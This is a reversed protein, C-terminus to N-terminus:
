TYMIKEINELETKVTELSNTTINSMSCISLYLVLLSLVGNQFNEMKFTKLTTGYKRVADLHTPRINAIFCISLYLIFLSLGCMKFTKLM